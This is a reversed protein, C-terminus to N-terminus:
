NPALRFSGRGANAGRAGEAGSNPPSPRGLQTKRPPDPARPVLRVWDNANALLSEIEGLPVDRRLKITFAQIHCRMAGVRVCISDIPIPEVSGLIKNGEGFAKWEERTDGAEM